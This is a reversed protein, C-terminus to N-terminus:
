DRAGLLVDHLRRLIKGAGGGDTGRASLSRKGFQLM